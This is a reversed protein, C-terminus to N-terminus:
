KVGKQITVKTARSVITQKEDNRSNHDKVRAFWDRAKTEAKKPDRALNMIYNDARFGNGSRMSRLTYMANKKGSSIYVSIQM